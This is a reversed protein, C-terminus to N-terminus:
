DIPLTRLNKHLYIEPQVSIKVFETRISMAIGTELRMVRQPWLVGPIRIDATPRM